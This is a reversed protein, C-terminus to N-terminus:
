KGGTSTNLSALLGIAAGFLATAASQQEATVWGAVAALGLLATAVRYVWARTTENM